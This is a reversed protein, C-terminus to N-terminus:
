LPSPEGIMHSVPEKEENIFYEIREVVISALHHRLENLALPTLAVRHEAKKYKLYFPKPWHEVIFLPWAENLTLGLLAAARNAISLTGLTDSNVKAHLIEYLTMHSFHNAVLHGAICGVTKCDLDNWKHNLRRIDYYDSLWEGMSLREPRDSIQQAAVRLRAKAEETLKM